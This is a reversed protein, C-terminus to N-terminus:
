SGRLFLQKSTGVIWIDMNMSETFSQLRKWPAKERHTDKIFYIWTAKRLIPWVTTQVGFNSVIKGRLTFPQNKVWFHFVSPCNWFYWFLTFSGHRDRAWTVGM